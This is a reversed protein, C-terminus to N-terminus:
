PGVQKGQVAQRMQQHWSTAYKGNKVMLESHSGSEILKGSDMVHIIDSQMATTFRHTILLVTKDKAFERFRSLWDAEAWSDMASTPEDLIIIPVDRLFARALAVRQWEGGSLEAGGFWKGLITQYGDPLRKILDDAGAARASEIVLEETPNSAIDGFAINKAATEHYHTPSQFLVTISTWLQTPTFERLDVGDIQIQGASPDYFRCLLKTVTSKGAGNEGVIAAIKGSPITLNFNKLAFREGGPYKFSVENFQIGSSLPKRVSRSVGIQTHNSELKLFEFLNEIFLINRLIQGVSGLLTQFLKQGQNFAQYFIAIDGLSVQGNILRWIMWITAGGMTVLALLGAFMDGIAQSRALHAREERLKKRIDQYTQRFLNGLSFLRLEAAAERETLIWDYYNARRISETSKQRWNYERITYNIIVGLAPLMGILLAIPLWWTFRVLIIGMSIFTLSNQILAGINELLAIPRDYADVRARYLRDYYDPSDYFSLDLEIAKTHILGFIHDQVLEAQVTRVWGTISNLVQMLLMLLVIWLVWQLSQMYSSSDQISVANSINDVLLGSLFVLGIPLLGQLLLLVAWIVTWGRASDWILRFTDPIYPLQAKASKLRSFLPSLINL